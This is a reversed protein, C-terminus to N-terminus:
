SRLLLATAATVGRDGVDRVVLARHSDDGVIALRPVFVGIPVLIADVAAVVARTGGDVTTTPNARGRRYRTIEVTDHAAFLLADTRLARSLRQSLRAAAGHRTASGLELVLLTWRAGRTRLVFAVDRREPAVPRSRADVVEAVDLESRAIRVVDAVPARAVVVLWDPQASLWTRVFRAAGIRREAVEGSTRVGLGARVRAVRARAEAPPAPAPSLLAAPQSRAGLLVVLQDDGTVPHVTRAFELATRGKEDALDLRAGALLLRRAADTHGHALRLMLPTMGRADQEDIEAGAGLLKEIAGVTTAYHLAGTLPAGHALLLDVIEERCLAGRVIARQLPSLSGSSDLAEPRQLAVRVADLRNAVIALALPTIQPDAKSSVRGDDRIAAARYLSDCERDRDSESGCECECECESATANEACARPRQPSVRSSAPSAGSNPSSM